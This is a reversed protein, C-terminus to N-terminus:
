LSVPYGTQEVDYGLRTDSQEGVARTMAIPRSRTWSIGYVTERGMDALMPSDAAEAFEPFERNKLIGM